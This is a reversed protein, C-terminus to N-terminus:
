EMWADETEENQPEIELSSCGVHVVVRTGVPYDRGPEMEDGRVTVSLVLDDMDSAVQRVSDVVFGLSRLTSLAQRSGGERVDKAKVMRVGLANVTLYIVRGEKVPLGAAPIQEIVAGPRADAYVSDIVAGKLHMHELYEIAEAAPIGRLNPVDIRETHRTYSGLWMTLGIIIIVALAMIIVLNLGVM